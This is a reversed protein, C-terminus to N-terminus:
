ATPSPDALGHAFAFGAAATRSAAGTKAFINSLHREVTRESIALSRAVTRNTAGAAVLRLVEIERTTLGAAAAVGTTTPTDTTRAVDADLARLDPQAGLHTFVALAAARERRAGDDDGLADLARALTARARGTDRHAGIDRWGRCAEALPGIADDPRSALLAATGAAQAAAALLWSSRYTTAIDALATAAATATQADRTAEALEVQAALLPARALPETVAALAVRLGSEAARHDGQLARLLALGPQPDRGLEHASSYAAEAADVEGRLRHVEGLQYHAAAVVAVNMDALDVAAREAAEAADRWAGELCLLQARHVRCIGTFMAPDAHDDCWRETAATWQRARVVDGLEIFLGMLQCYLNGAWNPTVAGARVSLMAEDIHALGDALRGARVAAVGQYVLGMACLTPDAHRDGIAHLEHAHATATDFAGRDLAQAVELFRIYGHATSEPQDALLRTARSVWGSGITVEGRVFWLFGMEIAIRAAEPVRDGHLHRRYLQESLELSGDTDGLWWASDAFAALDSADLTGDAAAARFTRHADAWRRAAYARRARDLLDTSM